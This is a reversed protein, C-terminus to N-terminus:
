WRVRSQPTPNGVGSSRQWARTRRSSFDWLLMLGLLVAASEKAFVGATRSPSSRSRRGGRAAQPRIAAIWGLVSLGALLDSRGAISTVSETCIPHVAWLAAAFFPGPRRPPLASTCNMCCGCTSPTCCSMRTSTTLRRSPDAGTEWSVLSQVRVVAHHHPSIARRGGIAVLLEKRPHAESERRDVNWARCGKGPGHRGPGGGLGFSM